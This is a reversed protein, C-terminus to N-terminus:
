SITSLVPFPRGNSCNSDVSTVVCGNDRWHSRGMHHFCPQPRYSVQHRHRPQLRRSFVNAVQDHISLFRQVQRLSKFRKMIRKYPTKDTLLFQLMLKEIPALDSWRLTHLLMTLREFVRALKASTLEPLDLEFIM